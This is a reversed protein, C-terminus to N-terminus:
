VIIFHLMMTKLRFIFPPIKARLKVTSTRQIQKPIIVFVEMKESPDDLLRLINERQQPIKVVKTFPLNIRIKSLDEVVNYKMETPNSMLHQKRSGANDTVNENEKKENV